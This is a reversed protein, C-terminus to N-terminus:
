KNSDNRKREKRFIAERVGKEIREYTSDSINKMKYFMEIEGVGRFTITVNKEDISDSILYHLGRIMRDALIDGTESLLKGDHKKYTPNEVMTLRHQITKGNIAVQIGFNRRFMAVVRDAVKKDNTRTIM